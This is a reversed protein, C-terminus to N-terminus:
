NDLLKELAVFAKANDDVVFWHFSVGCTRDTNEMGAANLKKRNIAVILEAIQSCFNIGLSRNLVVRVHDLVAPPHSEEVSL